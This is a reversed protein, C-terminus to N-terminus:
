RSKGLRFASIVRCLLTTTTVIRMSRPAVPCNKVDHRCQFSLFFLAGLFQVRRVVSIGGNRVANYPAFNVPTLRLVSARKRRDTRHYRM